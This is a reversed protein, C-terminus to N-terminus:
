GAIALSGHFVHYVASKEADQSLHPEGLLVVSPLILFSFRDIWTIVSCFVACPAQEGM